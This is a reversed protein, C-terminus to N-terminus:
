MRIIVAYNQGLLKQAEEATMEGYKKEYVDTQQFYNSVVPSLSFPLSENLVAGILSSWDFVVQNLLTRAIPDKVQSFQPVLEKKAVDTMYDLLDQTVHMRKVLRIYTQNNEERWMLFCWNGLPDQGVSSMNVNIVRTPNPFTVPFVWHKKGTNFQEENYQM